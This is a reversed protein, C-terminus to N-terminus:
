REKRKHIFISLILGMIIIPLNIPTKTDTPAIKIANSPAPPPTNEVIIKPTTVVPVATAIPVFQKNNNNDVIIPTAIPKIAPTNTVVVFNKMENKVYRIPVPTPTPTPIYQSITLISKLNQIKNSEILITHDGAHLQSINLYAFWTNYNNADGEKITATATQEYDLTVSIINSPNLNTTGGVYLLGNKTIDKQENQVQHQESFKLFSPEVVITYNTFTDDCYNKNDICFQQIKFPVSALNSSVDIPHPYIWPSYIKTTNKNFLVETIDNQGSFQILLAYKGVALLNKSISVTYTSGDIPLPSGYMLNAYNGTYLWVHATKSNDTVNGTITAIDGSSILISGDITNMQMGYVPFISLALILLTLISKYKM